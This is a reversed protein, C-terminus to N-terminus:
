DESHYLERRAVKSLGLLYARPDVPPVTPKGDKNEMKKYSLATLSLEGLGVCVSIVNSASGLPESGLEGENCIGENKSKEERVNKEGRPAHRHSSGGFVFVHAAPPLSGREGHTHVNTSMGMSLLNSMQTEMETSFAASVSTVPAAGNNTGETECGDIMNAFTGRPTPSTMM